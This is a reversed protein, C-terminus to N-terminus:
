IYQSKLLSKKIKSLVIFIAQYQQLQKNLIFCELITSIAIALNFIQSLPKILSHIKLKLMKVSIGDLGLTSDDKLAKITKIIEEDYIVSFKNFANTFYENFYNSLEKSKVAPQLKEGFKNNITQILFRTLIGTIHIYTYL